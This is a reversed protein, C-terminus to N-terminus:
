RDAGCGPGGACAFLGHDNRRHGGRNRLCQRAFGPYATPVAASRDHGDLRLDHSRLRKAYTINVIAPALRAASNSDYACVVHCTSIQHIRSELPLAAPSRAILLRELCMQTTSTISSPDADMSISPRVTVGM